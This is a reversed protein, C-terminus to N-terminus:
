VLRRKELLNLILVRLVGLLALLKFSAILANSFDDIKVSGIYVSALNGM